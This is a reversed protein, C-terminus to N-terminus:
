FLFVRYQFILKDAEVAFKNNDLDHCIVKKNMYQSQLVINNIQSQLDNVGEQHDEKTTFVDFFSDIREGLVEIAQWLEDFPSGSGNKQASVVVPAMVLVIFLVLTSYIIKQKM